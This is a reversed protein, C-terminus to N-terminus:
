AGPPRSMGDALLRVADLVVVHEATVGKLYRERIGTLTPLTGHLDALPLARTGVITRALVGLEAAGSRIVIIRALDDIGDLPLEFLRALSLVPVIQGRLNVIGGIHPPMGALPTLERIPQVERVWSTEVAYREAAVTFEVVDISVGSPPAVLPRALARARAELVRLVSDPTAAM